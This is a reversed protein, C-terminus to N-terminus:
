LTGGLGFGFMNTVRSSERATPKPPLFRLDPAADSRAWAAGVRASLVAPSRTVSRAVSLRGTGHIPRAVSIRMSRDAASAIPLLPQGGRHPRQRLPLGTPREAIDAFTTAKQARTRRPGTTVSSAGHAAVIQTFSTSDALLTSPSTAHRAGAQGPASCGWPTAAPSPSRPFPM